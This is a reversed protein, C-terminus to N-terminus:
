KYWLKKLRPAIVLKCEKLDSDYRYVLVDPVIHSPSNLPTREYEKETQWNYWRNIICIDNHCNPPYFNIRNLMNETGLDWGLYSTLLKEVLIIDSNKISKFNSFYGIYIKHDRHQIEEIHHGVDKFRKYAARITKGCYYCEKSKAYRRKGHLLYLNIVCNHSKEWTEVEEKSSFPGFWKIFFAKDLEM